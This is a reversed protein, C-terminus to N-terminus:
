GTTPPQGPPPFTTTPNLLEDPPPPATRTPDVEPMLGGTEQAVAAAASRWADDLTALASRADAIAAPTGGAAIFAGVVRQYDGLVAVLAEAASSGQLGKAAGTVQDFQGLVPRLAEVATISAASGGSGVGPVLAHVQAVLGAAQDAIAALKNPVVVTTTTRVSAEKRPPDDTCASTGLLGIMTLM